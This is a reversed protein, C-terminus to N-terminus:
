SFDITFSSGKDPTSSVSIDWDYIDCIKKVLSLGIGFWQSNRSTDVKYFRDFIKKTNEQSMGIGTDKIVLKNDKYTIHIKGKEKNYRIANGILNSLVIYLYNRNAIIEAKKPISVKPAISQSSLTTKHTSLVEEVMTHLVIKEGQDKKLASIDSLQILTDILENLKKAEDKIEGVISADYEKVEQLYQVNSDIVTIPTKLEHGANHIFHNMDKMNEEVPTFTKTVFKSVITYLILSFLITFVIFIVNDSIYDELDYRLKQFIVLTEGNTPNEIKQVVFGKFIFTDKKQVEKLLDEWFDDNISYSIQYALVQNDKFIFYSIGGLFSDSWKPKKPKKKDDGYEDKHFFNSIQNIDIKGTQIDRGLDYIARKELTVDKYYKLTFFSIWLFIMMCFLASTFVLTLKKKTHNIHTNM